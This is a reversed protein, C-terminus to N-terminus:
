LFHLYLLVNNLITLFPLYTYSSYKGKNFNLVAMRLTAKSNASGFAETKNSWM